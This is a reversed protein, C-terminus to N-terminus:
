KNFSRLEQGKNIEYVAYFDILSYCNCCNFMLTQWQKRWFHIFCNASNTHQIRSLLDSGINKKRLKLWLQEYKDYFYKINADLNVSLSKLCLLPLYLYLSDQSSIVGAVIGMLMNVSQGM